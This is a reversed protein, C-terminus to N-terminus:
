LAPGPYFSGIEELVNIQKKETQENESDLSEEEWAMRSVHLSTGLDCKQPAPRPSHSAPNGLNRCSSITLNMSHSCCLKNYTM